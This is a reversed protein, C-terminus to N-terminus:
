VQTLQSNIGELNFADVYKMISERVAGVVETVPSNAINLAILNDYLKKRAERIDEQNFVYHGCVVTVEKLKAPSQAIDRETLHADEKLLWKKWRGCELAAKQILPTFNSPKLDTRGSIAQEEQKALNLLAKTEDAGFEPAVNAGTIGLEPHRRLIDLPLYDANHEKFGLGYQRAIQCLLSTNEPDFLGVNRDMKVLTGTQGVIFAPHPLRRADLEKLLDAIFREFADASILGGMTEETGVEYSVAPLSLRQVQEETYEMLELTREIIINMPVTGACHPDKTPDIHLLNFGAKLDALYSAKAIKMAEDALLKGYKESDRQWPGGHDRCLYLAGDFGVEGASKHIAESFARQDWGMVYGGGLEALDIQNRSAILIVPFGMDRALELTARLVVASMPGIGLLTTKLDKEQMARVMECLSKVPKLM